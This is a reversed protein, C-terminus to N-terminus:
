LDKHALLQARAPMTLAAVIGLGALISTVKM